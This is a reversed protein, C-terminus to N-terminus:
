AARLPPSNSSASCNLPGTVSLMSSRKCNAQVAVVRSNILSGQFSLKQRDLIECAFLHPVSVRRCKAQVRGECLNILSGQCALGQWGLLECAIHGERAGADLLALAVSNHIGSTHVGEESACCGEDAAGVIYGVQLYAHLGCAVTKM